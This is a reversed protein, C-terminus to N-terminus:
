KREPLAAPLIYGLQRLGKRFAAENEASVVIHREGVALCYRKTRPDHSLLQATDKDACEILRAAGKDIVRRSREEVDDLFRAIVEPLENESRTQLLERLEKLDRGGEVAALMKAQELRWVRESSKEAYLSLILMEGAAAQLDTIVVDRNPLVRLTPRHEQPALTYTDSLGLCYAGLGNLRLYQLGDYRSFSELDGAGWFGSYDPRVGAPQTYAIDILGLTAVYEFLFCLTYRAQLINWQSAGAGFDYGLSGYDASSIYLTWEDRTVEFDHEAHLYRLFDDVSVWKGVPCLRLTKAIADRRNKPATLDKQGNGTQGRINNIRRLEDYLSSKLWNQWLSRLIDSPPIALAKQGAPTLDLKKGHLVAFKGAQVLLPWAFAKVPGVEAQEDEGGYAKRRLARAKRRSALPSMVELITIGGDAPDDEDSDAVADPMNDYFDGGHLLAGVAKVSGATPLSTKESVSVKGASMLRLMVPADQLADRETERRVVPLPTVVDTYKKTEYDYSKEFLDYVEDIDDQSELVIRPPVPVFAKLRLKLDEPLTYHHLFMSLLSAEERYGNQWDPRTGFNPSKGYKAQFREANYRGDPAYLAEAVAAQQTADLREWAERLKDGNMQAILVDVIAGKRAPKEAKFLANLKKLNEVTYSELADKLTAYGAQEVYYSM